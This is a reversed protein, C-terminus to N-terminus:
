RRMGKKTGLLLTIQRLIPMVMKVFKIKLGMSRGEFERQVDNLLDPIPLHQPCKKICKGCNICLSACSPDGNVGGLTFLYRSKAEKEHFAHLSNYFYFCAAINVGQPCPMCYQCGTCGVPMIERYIDTVRDVLGLEEKTLSYPLAEDAVRLNEDIHAEENMGSLVVTVEPHNWVWRLGWEAPTRKVLAEDWVRAVEPPIDSALMGGRLPEMIIVALNKESAYKLGDRGAQNHIDLFNYQIQCFDWDYSDIIERFTYADGHYSFGTYKIKGDKKAKDLFDCLGLVKVRDWSGKELSHVLYYDIHDTQLRKLQQKLLAYMDDHNKVLWQPLKTALRVKERYGDQLARGLFPESEGNHYPVATDIYNVGQDIASRIQRTAREEDIKGKKTQPLRM